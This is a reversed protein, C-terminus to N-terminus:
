RLNTQEGKNFNKFGRKFDNTVPLLKRMINKLNELQAVNPMNAAGKASNVYFLWEKESKDFVKDAIKGKRWDQYDLKHIVYSTLAKVYYVDDPILPLGEEDTPVGLYVICVNAELNDHDNINTIMYSDNLYFTYRCIENQCVPIRCDHCQYNNANTNTAWYIPHNKYNADVLKYFGCPLKAKGNVLTLCESIEEYQSYAGILSLGEAIWEYADGENIEYNVGLDRYITALIKNISTFGSIM